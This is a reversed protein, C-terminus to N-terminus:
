VRARIAAFDIVWGTGECQSCNDREIGPRCHCPEGTQPQYAHRKIASYGSWNWESVTDLTGYRHGRHIVGYAKIGFIEETLRDVMYKGSTGVDVRIYKPGFHVSVTCVSDELDGPSNPYETKYRARQEREVLAAFAKVRSEQNMLKAKRKAKTSSVTWARLPLARWLQFAGMFRAQVYLPMTM